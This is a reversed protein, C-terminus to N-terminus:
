HYYCETERGQLDLTGDYCGTCHLHDDPQHTERTEEQVVDPGQGDGGGHGEDAQRDELCSPVSGARM